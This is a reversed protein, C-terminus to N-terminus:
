VRGVRLFQVRLVRFVVWRTASFIVVDAERGQFGDVTSFEVVELAASGGHEQFIRRLLAVQARYPALVALSRVEDAHRGMLQSYLTYAVEAEAQNCLSGGAAGGRERGQM